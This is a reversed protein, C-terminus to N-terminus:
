RRGASSSARRAHSRDGCHLKAFYGVSCRHWSRWDSALCRVPQSEQCLAHWRLFSRFLARLACSGKEKGFLRSRNGRERLRRHMWSLRMGRGLWNWGRGSSIISELLRDRRQDSHQRLRVAPRRSHFCQRRDRPSRPFPGSSLYREPHNAELLTVTRSRLYRTLPSSLRKPRWCSGLHIHWGPM